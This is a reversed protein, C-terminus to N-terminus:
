GRLREDRTLSLRVSKRSQLEACDQEVLRTWEARESPTETGRAIKEDLPWILKLRALREPSMLGLAAAIEAKRLWRGIPLPGADWIM